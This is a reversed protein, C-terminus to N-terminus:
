SAFYQTDHFISFLPCLFSGTRSWLPYSNHDAQFPGVLFYFPLVYELFPSRPAPFLWSTQLMPLELYFFHPSLCFSRFLHLQFIHLPKPWASSVHFQKHWSLSKPCWFCETNTVRLNSHCGVMWSIFSKNQSVTESPNQGDHLSSISQGNLPHCHFHTNYVTWM